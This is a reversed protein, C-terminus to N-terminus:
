RDASPLGRERRAVIELASIISTTSIEIPSRAGLHMLSLWASVIRSGKKTILVPRRPRDGSGEAFRIFEARLLMGFHEIARDSSCSAAACVQAATMEAGQAGAARYLALLMLWACEEIEPAVKRRAAVGDLYSQVNDIECEIEAHEGLVRGLEDTVTHLNLVPREGLVM